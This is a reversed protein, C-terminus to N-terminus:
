DEEEDSTAEFNKKSVGNGDPEGEEKLDNVEDEEGASEDDKAAAQSTYDPRPVKEGKESLVTEIAPLLTILAGYQELPMSIGKKGPLSQGDKEYYERINVMRKGKFESVTVRRLHSLEWFEDGNSDIAGGGVVEKGAKADKGGSVNAPVISTKTKARKAKPRDEGDDNAVFGGDSDYDEVESARKRAKPPM